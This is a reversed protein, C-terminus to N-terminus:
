LQVSQDVSIANVANEFEKDEDLQVPYENTSFLISNDIPLIRAKIEESTEPMTIGMVSSSHLEKFDLQPYMDQLEPHLYSVLSAMRLDLEAGNETIILKNFIPVYEPRLNHDKDTLLQAVEDQYRLFGHPLSRKNTLSQDYATEFLDNVHNKSCSQLESEHFMYLTEGSRHELYELIFDNAQTGFESELKSRMTMVGSNEADIEHPFTNWCKRYYQPNNFKSLDSILIEKPTNNSTSQANDNEIYNKAWNKM